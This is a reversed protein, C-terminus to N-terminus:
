TLSFTRRIFPQCGDLVVRSDLTKETLFHNIRPYLKDLCHGTNHCADIANDLYVMWHSLNDRVHIPKCLKGAKECISAWADGGYQHGWEQQFAQRARGFYPSFGGHKRVMERSFDTMGSPLRKSWTFNPFFDGLFRECQMSRLGGRMHQLEIWVCRAMDDLLRRRTLEFVEHAFFNLDRGNWLLCVAYFDCMM